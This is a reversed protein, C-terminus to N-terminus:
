LMKDNSPYIGPVVIGPNFALMENEQFFNDVNKNLVMKGLPRLPFREEPWIKTDDLPDFEYKDEDAPDM